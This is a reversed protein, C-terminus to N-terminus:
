AGQEVAAFVYAKGIAAAVFRRTPLKEDNQGITDTARFPEDHDALKRGEGLIGALAPPIQRLTTSFEFNEGTCAYKESIGGNDTTSTDGAVTDTKGPAEEANTSTRSCAAPFISITILVAPLLRIKFMKFKM